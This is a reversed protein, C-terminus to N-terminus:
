LQSITTFSSDSATCCSSTIHKLSTKCIIRHRDGHSIHRSLPKCTLNWASLGRNYNLTQSFVTINYTISNVRAKVKSPARLLTNLARGNTRLWHKYLGWHIIQWKREDKHTNTRANYSNTSMLLFIYDKINLKFKKKQIFLNITLRDENTSCLVM